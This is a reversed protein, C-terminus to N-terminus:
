RNEMGYEMYKSKVDYSRGDNYETDRNIKQTENKKKLIIKANCSIHTHTQLGM